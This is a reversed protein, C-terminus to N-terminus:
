RIAVLQKDTVDVSEVKSEEAEPRVLMVPCPADALVKAAVSGYLLRPVGRRGHTSMVIMDIGDKSASGVIREGPEGVDVAATARVKHLALDDVIRQLWRMAEDVLELQKTANLEIVQVLNKVGVEFPLDPVVRLLVLEANLRQALEVAPSVAFNATETGDLPLLIKAFQNAM